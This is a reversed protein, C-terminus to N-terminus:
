YWGKFIQVWEIVFDAYEMAEDKSIKDGGAHGAKRNRADAMDLMRDLALAQPALEKLPHTAHEITSLLAAFM